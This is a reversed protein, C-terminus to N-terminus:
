HLSKHAFSTSHRLIRHAGKVEPRRHAQKMTLCCVSCSNSSNQRLALQLQRLQLLKEQRQCCTGRPPSCIAKRQCNFESSSLRTMLKFHLRTMSKLQTQNACALRSHACSAGCSVSCRQLGVPQPDFVVAWRFSWSALPVFCPLLLM